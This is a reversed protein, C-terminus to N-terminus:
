QVSTFVADRMQLLAGIFRGESAEFVNDTATCSLEVVRILFSMQCALTLGSMAVLLVLM